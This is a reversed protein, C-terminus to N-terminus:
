MEKKYYDGSLSIVSDGGEYSVHFAGSQRLKECIDTKM